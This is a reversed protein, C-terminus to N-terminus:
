PPGGSGRMVVAGILGLASTGLYVAYQADSERLFVGTVFDGGLEALGDM